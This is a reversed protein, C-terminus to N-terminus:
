DREPRADSLLHAAAASAATVTLVSPWAGLAKALPHSLGFGLVYIAGLGAATAPGRRALWTRGACLGAAGLVVGGLARVGTARAVGYGGILGLAVVPATDLAGSPHVFPNASTM